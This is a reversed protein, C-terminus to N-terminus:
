PLEGKYRITYSDMGTGKQMGTTGSAATTGEAVHDDERLIEHAINKLPQNDVDVLRVEQDFRSTPRENFHQSVAKPALTELNGHFLTPSSSFVQVKDSVEIMCNNGHLRVGKKGKIDVWDTESILSLVKGALLEMEDRQAQISVKGSAAVLKMGAKHVFLRFTEAVSAFVSGGSAIAIHKASTLASHGASALHLTQAETVAVGAASAVVVHPVALEPFNGKSGRIGDNQADILESTAAQQKPEQARDAEALGALDAQLQQAAVLRAVAGDMQKAPMATAETTLLLGGTARAVGAAHTALEWGEGRAENRGRCGDIRTIYGLSLQSDCHDSRLQVQIQKHTDDLILSNSRGNANNGKGPELERSRFGMLAHQGPLEWPPPNRGDPVCGTVIPRDPNGDLWQVIVEMNARPIAVACLQAGAWGSAVRIWTSSAQDNKGERDWHFQVRIRGFQDTLVDPLGPSGVVVATQPALIRTMVSNHGCVPRWTIAKRTCTFTNRYTPPLKDPHLYNSTAIHRVSLLLFANRETKRQSAHHGFSYHDTLYFSRGPLLCRNNGAGEFYRANAEMAEIRRRCIHNEYQVDKLEYTGLYQYSEIKPVVGQKNFTPLTIDNPRSARFEFGRVSISTSAMQRVASWADIADEQVSGGAGQFRIADDGDIPPANLTTDALMLKHGSATHEYWYLCGAEEWRRSLYNFDSEEFQFADVMVPDDHILRRSWSVYGPYSQFIAYAQDDLNKNHFIFSNQRFELFKMWPGLRAEYFTVGGDSRIRRFDFVYGTFHRLTGDLLILQVNLLKGHMTKLEVTESACLLEVTFEFSRSLSEVADLRNVLFQERPGDNRPYALRLIRNHRPSHILDFLQQGQMGMTAEPSTMSCGM